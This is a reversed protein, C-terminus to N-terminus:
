FVHSLLVITQLGYSNYVESYPLPPPLTLFADTVWKM